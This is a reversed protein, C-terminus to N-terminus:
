PVNLYRLIGPDDRRRSLITFTPIVTGNAISYGASVWGTQTPLYPRNRVYDGWNPASGNCTSALYYEAAWSGAFYEDNSYFVPCPYQTGGMWTTTLGLDGRANPSTYPYQVAISNYAIYPRGTVALTDERLTVAEVYPFVGPNNADWQFGLEGVGPSSSTGGAQGKRLWGSQIRSDSRGCPNQGAVVCSGSGSTQFSFAFGLARDYSFINNDTELQTYIRISSNSGRHSGFYMQNTAGSVLGGWGNADDISFWTFGINGPCDQLTDLSIKLLVNHFTPFMNASIYVYNNSLAMLPQDYYEAAPYGLQVPNLEWNCFTNGGDVSRGLM